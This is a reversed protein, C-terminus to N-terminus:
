GREFFGYGVATKAGAGIYTLAKQLLSFGEKVDDMTGRGRVPAITFNFSSGAAVTLFFIPVPSYYDAPPNNDPDNYYESYHPNMIDLELKPIKSPIADFMILVGEGLKENDGFLRKYQEWHGTDDWNKAWSRILGKVASGPLYPVSLTKHWGFGTELVHAIGLGSVFRWTTKFFQKEGGIFNILKKRRNLYDELIVPIKKHNNFHNIISNLFWVKPNSDWGPYPLIERSNDIQEKWNPFGSWFDCYKDYLLGTHAEPELARPKNGEHKLSNYLPLCRPPGEKIIESKEKGKNIHRKIPKAGAKNKGPLPRNFKKALEEKWDKEM